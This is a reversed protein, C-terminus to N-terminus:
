QRIGTMADAMAGPVVLNIVHMVNAKVPFCREHRHPSNKTRVVRM